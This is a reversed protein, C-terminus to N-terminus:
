FLRRMRRTWLMGSCFVMCALIILLVVAVWFIWIHSGIGNDLNMGFAGSVAASAAVAVGIIATKLELVMIKNRATDLLLSVHRSALTLQSKLTHLSSKLATLQFYYSELLDEIDDRLTTDIEDASQARFCLMALNDWEEPDPEEELVLSLGRAALTVDEMAQDCAIEDDVLISLFKDRPVGRITAIDDEVSQTVVQEQAALAMTTYVLVTELALLEFDIPFITDTEYLLSRFEDDDKASQLRDYHENTVSQFISTFSRIFSSSFPTSADIVHVQYEEEHKCIVVNLEDFTVLIKNGRRAEIFATNVALLSTVDRGDVGLHPGIKRKPLLKSTESFALAWNIDKPREDDEIDFDCSLSFTTLNISRINATRITQVVSEEAFFSEAGGHLATIDDLSGGRDTDLM